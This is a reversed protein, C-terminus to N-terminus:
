ACRQYIGMRGRLPIRKGGNVLAVWGTGDKIFETVLYAELGDPCESVLLAVKATNVIDHPHAPEFNAEIYKAIIVERMESTFENQHIDIIGLMMYLHSIEESLRELPNLSGNSTPLYSVASLNIEHVEHELARIEKLYNCRVERAARLLNLESFYM